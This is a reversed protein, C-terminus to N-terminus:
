LLRSYVDEDHRYGMRALMDGITSTKAHGVMVHRKSRYMVKEVGLQKLLQETGRVLRVGAFGREDRDLFIVDNVAHITHRYHIHPTVHFANYGILRGNKRLAATWLVEERQLRFAREWDPALPIEMKDCAVEEWHAALLDEVGDDLLQQLPEWDLTLSPM